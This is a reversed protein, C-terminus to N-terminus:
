QTKYKEILSVLFSLTKNKLTQKMIDFENKMSDSVRSHIIPLEIMINNLITSNCESIIQQSNNMIIEQTQRLAQEHLLFGEEKCYLVVGDEKHSIVIDNEYEMAYGLEILLKLLTDNM